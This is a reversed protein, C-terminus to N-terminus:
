IHILSLSFELRLGPHEELFAPLWPAIQHQAFTPMTHVRLLGVIEACLTDGVSETDAMAELAIRAARFYEQGEATPVVSRQLRTFLRVGLRVELRGVLKSIASPSLQHARAAASFSGAEISWVFALLQSYKETEPLM